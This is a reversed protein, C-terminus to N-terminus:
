YLVPNKDKFFFFAISFTLSSIYTACPLNDFWDEDWTLALDYKCCSQHYGSIM